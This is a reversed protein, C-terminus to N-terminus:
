VIKSKKRKQKQSHFSLLVIKHKDMNSIFVCKKFIKKRKSDNNTQNKPPKLNLLISKTKSTNSKMLIKQTNAKPAFNNQHKSTFNFNSNTVTYTSM